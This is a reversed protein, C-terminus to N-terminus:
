GGQPEAPPSTTVPAAFVQAASPLKIRLLVDCLFAVLRYTKSKLVNFLLTDDDTEPTEAVNTIIRNFLPEIIRAHALKILTQVALLWACLAALQGPALGVLAGAQDIITQLENM